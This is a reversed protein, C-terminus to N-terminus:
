YYPLDFLAIHWETVLNILTFVACYIIWLVFDIGHILSWLLYCISMRVWSWAASRDQMDLAQPAVTLLDDRADEFRRGEKKYKYRSRFSDEESGGNAKRIKLELSSYLEIAASTTRAYYMYKNALHDHEDLADFKMGRLNAKHLLKMLKLDQGIALYHLTSGHPSFTIEPRCGRRRRRLLAKATDYCKYLLADHLPTLGEHSLASLDVFINHETEVIVSERAIFSPDRIREADVVAGRNLLIHVLPVNNNEAAYHLSTSGNSDRAKVDAGHKILLLASALGQHDKWYSVSLLATSQMINRQNVDVKNRAQNDLLLDLIKFCKIREELSRPTGNVNWHGVTSLLPFNGCLDSISADAGCRLLVAVADENCLAVAWALATHGCADTDNIMEKYMGDRLAKRLEGLRSELVLEHLKTYWQQDRYDDWYSAFIRRYFEAGVEGRQIIAWAKDM